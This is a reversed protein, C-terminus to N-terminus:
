GYTYLRLQWGFQGLWQLLRNNQAKPQGMQLTGTSSAGSGLDTEGTSIAISLFLSLSLSLNCCAISGCVFQWQVGATCHHVM